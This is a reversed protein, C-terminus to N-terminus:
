RGHPGGGEDTDAEDGDPTRGSDRSAIYVSLTELKLKLDAHKLRGPHTVSLRVPALNLIGRLGAELCKQAAEGAAEAPVTIIGIEIGNRAVFSRLQSINQVAVGTRSRTGIKAPDVDF